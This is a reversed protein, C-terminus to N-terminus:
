NSPLRMLKDILIYEQESDKFATEIVTQLDENYSQYFEDAIKSVDHAHGLGDFAGIIASRDSSSWFYAGYNEWIEAAKERAVVKSITAKGSNRHLSKNYIGSVVLKDLGGVASVSSPNNYVEDLRKRVNARRIAYFTLPIGGGVILIGGIWLAIKLKSNM